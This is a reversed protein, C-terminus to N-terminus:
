RTVKNISVDMVIGQPAFFSGGGLEQKETCFKSYLGLIKLWQQPDKKKGFTMEYFESPKHPKDYLFGKVDIVYSFTGFGVPQTSMSTSGWNISTIYLLSRTKATVVFDNMLTPFPAGPQWCTPSLAKKGNLRTHPLQLGGHRLIQPAMDRLTSSPSSRRVIASWGVSFFARGLHGPLSSAVQFSAWFMSPGVSCM